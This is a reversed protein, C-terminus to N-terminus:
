SVHRGGLLSVGSVGRVPIRMMQSFHSHTMDAIISYNPANPQGPSPPRPYRHGITAIIDDRTFNKWSPESRVNLWISTMSRVFSWPLRIYSVPDITILVNIPRTTLSHFALDGGYSHGVITVHADDPIKRVYEPAAINDTWSFYQCHYQPNLQLYAEYYSEVIHSIWDDGGGGIFIKYVNQMLSLGGLGTILLCVSCVNKLCRRICRIAM